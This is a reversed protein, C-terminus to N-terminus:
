GLELVPARRIPGSAPAPSWQMFAESACKYGADVLHQVADIRPLMWRLALRHVM